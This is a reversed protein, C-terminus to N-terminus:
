IIKKFYNKSCFFIAIIVINDNNCCSCVQTVLLLVIYDIMTFISKASVMCISPAAYALRKYLVVM